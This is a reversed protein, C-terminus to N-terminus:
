SKLIMSILKNKETLEAEITHMLTSGCNFIALRPDLYHELQCLQYEIDIKTYEDKNLFLLLLKILKKEAEM